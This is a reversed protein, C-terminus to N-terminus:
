KTFKVTFTYGSLNKPITLAASGNAKTLGNFTLTKAGKKTATIIFKSVPANSSITLLYSNSSVKKAKVKGKMLSTSKPTAATAESSTFIQADWASAALKRGDGSMAIGTWSRNSGSTSWTTGSDTSTLIL